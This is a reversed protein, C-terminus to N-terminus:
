SISLFYSMGSVTVCTVTKREPKQTARLSTRYAYPTMRFLNQLQERDATFIQEITYEEKLSMTTGLPSVVNKYPKEYLLSKM